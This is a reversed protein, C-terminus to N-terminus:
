FLNKSLEFGKFFATKELLEVYRYICDDLEEYQEFQEENFTELLKKEARELEKGLKVKEKIYEEPVLEDFFNSIRFDDVFELYPKM